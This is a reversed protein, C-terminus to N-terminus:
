ECDPLNTETKLMKRRQAKRWLDPLLCSWKRKAARSHNDVEPAKM